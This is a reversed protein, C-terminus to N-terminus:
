YKLMESFIECIYIRRKVQLRDTVAISIVITVAWEAYGAGRIGDVRIFTESFCDSQFILRKANNHICWFM